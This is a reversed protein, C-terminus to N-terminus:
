GHLERCLVASTLKGPPAVDAAPILRPVWIGVRKERHSDVVRLLEPRIRSAEWMLIQTGTFMCCHLWLSLLSQLHTKNHLRSHLYTQLNDIDLVSPM